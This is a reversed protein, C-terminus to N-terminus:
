VGYAPSSPINSSLFPFNTMYFIFDDRKDYFLTLTFNVTGRSRNLLELYSASVNSETTEKTEFKVPYM